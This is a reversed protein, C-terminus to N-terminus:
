NLRQLKAATDPHSGTVMPKPGQNQISPWLPDSPLVCSVEHPLAVVSPCQDGPLTVASSVTAM